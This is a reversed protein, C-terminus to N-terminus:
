LDSIIARVSAYYFILNSIAGAHMQVQANSSSKFIFMPIDIFLAIIISIDFIRRMIISPGLSEFALIILEFM